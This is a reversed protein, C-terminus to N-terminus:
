KKELVSSKVSRIELNYAQDNIQQKDSWNMGSIGM